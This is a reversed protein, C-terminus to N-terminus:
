RKRAAGLIAAIGKASDAAALEAVYSRLLACFALLTKYETLRDHLEDLRTKGPGHYTAKRGPEFRELRLIEDETDKISSEIGKHAHDVLWCLHRPEVGGGIMAALRSEIKSLEPDKRPM